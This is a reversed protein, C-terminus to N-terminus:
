AIVHCGQGEVVPGPYEIMQFCARAVDARDIRDVELVPHHGRASIDGIHEGAGERIKPTESGPNAVAAPIVLIPTKGVSVRDIEAAPQVRNSGVDCPSCELDAMARQADSVLPGQPGVVLRNRQTALM